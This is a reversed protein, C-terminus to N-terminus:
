AGKAQKLLALYYRNRLAELEGSQRMSKIVDDLIPALHRNKKHLYHYLYHRELPPKFINVGKLELQNIQYLGSFKTSVVVEIRHHKLMNFMVKNNNLVVVKKAEKLGLEAFKIGRVRAVHYSKLSSWGKIEIDKRFSFATPEFYIYPTPVRILDPYLDGVKYIRMQEGDLRGTSSALIARAGPLPVLELTVGARQYIEALIKAGLVQNSSAEIQAIKLANATFVSLMITLLLGKKFLKLLTKQGM